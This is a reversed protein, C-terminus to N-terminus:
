SENLSYTELFQVPANIIGRVDNAVLELKNQLGEEQPYTCEITFIRVPENQNYLILSHESLLIEIGLAKLRREINSISISSEVPVQIKIVLAQLLNVEASFTEGILIVKAKGGFSEAYLTAWEESSIEDLRRYRM